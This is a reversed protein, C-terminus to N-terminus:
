FTRNLNNDIKRYTDDDVRNLIEVPIWKNRPNIATFPDPATVDITQTPFPLVLRHAHLFMRWPESDKRNSYTYDGVITHGLSACHVRLQHRRGTLPNLLVKTAPYNYCIGRELVLIDTYAHRPHVCYPTDGCCMKHAHSPRSDAGISTEVHIEDQSVHGRVVALYYKKTKRNEFLKTAQAASKKDLAICIAGSTSYDLRHVFRFSHTLKEDVMNPFSRRLMTQLTNESPSDSNILLDHKKNLILFSNSSYLVELQDDQATFCQKLRHILNQLWKILKFVFNFVTNPAMKTKSPATATTPNRTAAAMLFMYKNSKSAPLLPKMWPKTLKPNPNTLM